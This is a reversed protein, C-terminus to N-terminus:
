SADEQANLGDAIRQAYEITAQCVETHFGSKMTDVIRYKAPADGLNGVPEVHFRILLIM